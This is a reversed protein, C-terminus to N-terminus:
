VANFLDYFVKEYIIHFFWTTACVTQLRVFHVGIQMSKIVENLPSWHFLVTDFFMFLKRHITKTINTPSNYNYQKM